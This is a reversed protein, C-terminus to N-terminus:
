FHIDEGDDTRGKPIHDNAPKDLAALMARLIGIAQTRNGIKVGMPVSKEGVTRDKGFVPKCWRKYVTGGTQSENAAIISYQDGYKNLMAGDGYESGEVRFFFETEGSMQNKGQLEKTSVFKIYAGCEACSAKIHPGAESLEM